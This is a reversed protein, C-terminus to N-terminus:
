FGLRIGLGISDWYSDWHFVLGLRIAILTPINSSEIGLFIRDSRIGITLISDTFSEIAIRNPNPNTQSESQSQSQTRKPNPDTQCEIPNRILIPM